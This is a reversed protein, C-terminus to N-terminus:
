VQFAQLREGKVRSFCRHLDRWSDNKLVKLWSGMCARTTMEIKQLSKCILVFGRSALEAVLEKMAAASRRRIAQPRIM